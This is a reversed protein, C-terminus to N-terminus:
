ICISPFNRCLIMFDLTFGLEFVDVTDKENQNKLHWEAEQLSATPCKSAAIQSKRKHKIVPKWQKILFDCHGRHQHRGSM